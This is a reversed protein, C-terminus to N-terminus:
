ITIHAGEDWRKAENSAKTFLVRGRRGVKRKSLKLDTNHEVRCGDKMMRTLIRAVNRSDDIGSHERGEFEMGLGRLMGVLNARDRHYFDCYLRRLDTFRRMYPPRDLISHECQKRVFDRVDWPGDCAFLVNPFPYKSYQSLWREFRGLVAPFPDAADVTSQEIGTLTTCFTSLTPNKVPRVYSQFEDVQAPLSPPLSDTVTCTWGEILVIPFEIIENPYDWDHAEQCTAEVDLVCYFDYPQ